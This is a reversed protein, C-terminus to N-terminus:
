HADNRVGGRGDSAHGCDESTANGSASRVGATAHPRCPAVAVPDGKLAIQLPTRMRVLGFRFQFGRIDDNYVVALDIRPVLSDERGFTYHRQRM